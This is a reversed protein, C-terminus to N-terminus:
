SKPRDDGVELGIRRGDRARDADYVARFSTLDSLTTLIATTRGAWYPARLERKLIKGSGTSPLEDLFTVSRPMKYGALHERAFAM